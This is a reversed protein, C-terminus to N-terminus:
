RMHPLSSTAMDLMEAVRQLVAPDPSQGARDRLVDLVQERTPASPIRHVVGCSHVANAVATLQRWQGEPMAEAFRLAAMDPDPASAAVVLALIQDAFCRAKRRRADQEEGSM